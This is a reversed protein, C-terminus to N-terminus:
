ASVYMYIYIYVYTHTHTHTHTYTCVCTLMHTGKERGEHSNIILLMINFIGNNSTHLLWNDRQLKKHLIAMKSTM